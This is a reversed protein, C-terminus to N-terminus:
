PEFGSTEEGAEVRALYRAASERVSMHSAGETFRRLFAAVALDKPFADLGHLFYVQDVPLMEELSEALFDLHRNGCTRIVNYTTQKCQLLAECGLKLANLITRDDLALVEAPLVTKLGDHFEKLAPPALDVLSGNGPLTAIVQCASRVLLELPDVAPEISLEGRHYGYIFQATDILPRAAYAREEAMAQQAAGAFLATAARLVHELGTFIHDGKWWLFPRMLPELKGPPVDRQPALIYARNFSEQFELVDRVPSVSQEM